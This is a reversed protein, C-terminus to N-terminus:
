AVQKLVDNLTSECERLQRELAAIRGHESSHNRSLAAVQSELSAKDRMCMDLVSRDAGMIGGISARTINNKLDYIREQLLRRERNCEALLDNTVDKSLSSTLGSRMKLREIEDEHLKVKDTAERLEMKLRTIEVPDAATSLVTMHYRRHCDRLSKPEDHSEKDAKPLDGLM